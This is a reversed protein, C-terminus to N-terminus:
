PQVEYRDRFIVAQQCGYILENTDVSITNAALDYEFTGPEVTGVATGDLILWITPYEGEVTVPQQAWLTQTFYATLTGACILVVAGLVAAVITHNRPELYAHHLHCLIVVAALALITLIIPALIDTM